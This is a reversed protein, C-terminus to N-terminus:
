AVAGTGAEVTAQVATQVARALRLFRRRSIRLGLTRTRFHAKDRAIEYVYSELVRKFESVEAVGGLEEMVALERRLVRPALLLVLAGLPRSFPPLCRRLAAAAYRDPGVGFVQCFAVRFDTPMRERLLM